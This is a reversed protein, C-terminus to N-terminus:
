MTFCYIRITICAGLVNVCHRKNYPNYGPKEPFWMFAKIIDAYNFFPREREIPGSHLEFTLVLGAGLKRPRYRWLEALAIRMIQNWFPLAVRIIEKDMIIVTPWACRSQRMRVFHAYYKKCPVIHCAGTVATATKSM